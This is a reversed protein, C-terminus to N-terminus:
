KLELGLVILLLFDFALTRRFSENRNSRVFLPLYEDSVTCTRTTTAVSKNDISSGDGEERVPGVVLITDEKVL